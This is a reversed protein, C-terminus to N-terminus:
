LNLSIPLCFQTVGGIPVNNYNLGGGVLVMLGCWFKAVGMQNGKQVHQTM